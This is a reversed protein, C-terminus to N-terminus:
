IDIKVDTSRRFDLTYERFLFGGKEFKIFYSGYELPGLRFELDYQCICNALSSSETENIKITDALIEVSVNIEGPECNFMSNIHNFSLYYDDTTKILFYEPEIGKNEYGKTKCASISLDKLAVPDNPFEKKCSTFVIALTFLFLYVVSKKM